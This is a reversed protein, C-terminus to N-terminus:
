EFRFEEGARLQTATSSSAAGGSAVVDGSLPALLSMTRAHKTTAAGARSAGEVTRWVSLSLIHAHTRVCM